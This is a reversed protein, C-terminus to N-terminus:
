VIEAFYTEAPTKYGLSQHLRQHNYFALYSKIKQRAETVTDYSNLYVEEYKITRWLREVFINDMCRGKGDMSVKVSNGELLNIWIDSTFQSGQDSNVIKPKCRHLASELIETCFEAEMTTSLNWAVIYRSYLDLLAVLYVFGNKLKIYTIDTAWVDNPARIKYDTLLYPYKRHAHNPKSLDPKQYVACLGMEKMLRHVRKRNVLHGRRQLEATVRRYGYFPLRLYLEKIENMLDIDDNDLLVSQYYISSRSLGLLECRRALTLSDANLKIAEM